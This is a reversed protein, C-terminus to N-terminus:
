IIHAGRKAVKTIYTSGNLLKVVDKIEEEKVVTFLTNGFMAMGSPYGYVILKEMKEKLEKNMLNVRLSFEQSIRLFNEITPNKILNELLFRSNGNVKSRIYPDTLADRTSIGSIHYALLYYDDKVPYSIVSGYGPAGEKVRIELGGQTEAIVTGLGTRCIVEALHAIQAVKEYSLNLKLAENLALSLSLAGAGSTGFGAGVPVEIKHYVYVGFNKGVIKRYYEIVKESVPARTLRGNIFIKTDDALKVYTYVGKELCLGAGKSGRKLPNLQQDRIEFIGTIHSPSYAKIM